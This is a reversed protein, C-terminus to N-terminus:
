KTVTLKVECTLPKNAEFEGVSKLTTRAISELADSTFFGQHSTVLVNPFSILRALTDDAVGQDSLDRFFYESEEEYVDIALAGIRKSKLGAVVAQSDIVAGRSTNVLMVGPKMLAIAKADVLHHTEPTLPCHLSIVDSRKWLEELPVYTLGMQECAASPFKDYGLLTCGFGSMLKVFVSGITGTGIVGITRGHLDFGELGTLEFNGERVRAFARHIKRNLTLILALAYEAVAYPSYAPVRVVRIGERAAAVLDINNYGACRLAILRTGGSALQTLVEADLIDNVFACVVPFGAALPATALTLRPSFFAIEHPSTNEANALSQNAAVFHQEDYSQSSFCAIRM